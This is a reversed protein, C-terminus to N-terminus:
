EEYAAPIIEPKRGPLPAEKFAVDELQIIQSPKIVDLQTHGAILLRIRQPDNLHTWEAKLVHITRQNQIIQNQLAALQEEKDLVQYKLIFMGACAILACLLFFCNFLFRKM